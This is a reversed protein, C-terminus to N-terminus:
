KETRKIIKLTEIFDKYSDVLLSKDSATSILHQVAANQMVHEVSKIYKPISVIDINENMNLVDCIFKAIKTADEPNDTPEVTLLSNGDPKFVQACFCHNPIGKQESYEYKKCM